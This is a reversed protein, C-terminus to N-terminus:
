HRQRNTEIAVSVERIFTKKKKKRVKIQKAEVPIKNASFERILHVIDEKNLKSSAKLLDMKYALMQCLTSSGFRIKGAIEGITMPLSNNEIIDVLISIIKPHHTKKPTKNNCDKKHSELKSALITSNCKKCLIYGQGAPLVNESAAKSIRISKRIELLQKKIGETEKVLNENLKRTDWIIAQTKDKKLSARRVEIQGPPEPRNPKLLEADKPILEENKLIHEVIKQLRKRLPSPIHLDFNERQFVVLEDVIRSLREIANRM